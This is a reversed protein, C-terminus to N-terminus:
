TPPAVLQAYEITALHRQSQQREPKSRAVACQAPQVGVDEDGGERKRARSRIYEDSPAQQQDRCQPDKAAHADHCCSPLSRKADRAVRDSLRKGFLAAAGLFPAVIQSGEYGPDLSCSRSEGPIATQEVDCLLPAEFGSQQELDGPQLVGNVGRRRLAPRKPNSSNDLGDQRGLPRATGNDMRSDIVDLYQAVSIRRRGDNLIKHRVCPTVRRARGNRNKALGSTAADLQCDCVVSWTQRRSDISPDVLQEPTAALAHRTGNWALLGGATNVAHLGSSAQTERDTCTERQLLTGLKTEYSCAHTGFDFQYNWQGNSRVRVRGL